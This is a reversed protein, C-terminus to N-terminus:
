KDTIIGAVVAGTRRFYFIFKMQRDYESHICGLLCRFKVAIHTNKIRNILIKTFKHLFKHMKQVSKFMKVSNKM